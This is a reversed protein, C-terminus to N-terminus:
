EFTHVSPIAEDNLFLESSGMAVTLPPLVQFISPGSSCTGAALAGFTTVATPAALGAV